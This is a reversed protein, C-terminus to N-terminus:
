YAYMHEDTRRPIRVRFVLDHMENHLAIRIISGSRLMCTGNFIPKKTSKTQINKLLRDDVFTGNTSQDQLIPIGYENTLIRFHINSIRRLPDNVFVIDCQDPNRGFAFGAAPSHVQSSLRLIIAHNGYIAPDHFQSPWDEVNDAEDRAAIFPSEAMLLRQVEVRATDSHPYLMCIIDSLDQDLSGANQRKLPLSRSISEM